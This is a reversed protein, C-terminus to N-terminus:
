SEPSLLVDRGEGYKETGWPDQEEFLGGSRESSGQPQSYSQPSVFAEVCGCLIFHPPFTFLTALTPPPYM